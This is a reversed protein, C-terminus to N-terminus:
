LCVDANWPILCYLPVNPYYYIGNPIMTNSEIVALAYMGVYIAVKCKESDVYIEILAMIIRSLLLCTIFWYVGPLMRGGYIFLIAKKTIDVVSAHDFALAMNLVYFFACPILLSKMQKFCWSKISKREPTKFLYGSILFFLPMHFWFIIDNMKQYHGHGVVVFIILFGKFIDVWQEHFIEKKDKGM